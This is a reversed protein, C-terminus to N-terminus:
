NLTPYELRQTNRVTVTFISCTVVCKIIVNSLLMGGACKVALGM